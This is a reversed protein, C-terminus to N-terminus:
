DHVIAVMNHNRHWILYIVLILSRSLIGGTSDLEARVEKVAATFFHLSVAVLSWRDAFRSPKNSM